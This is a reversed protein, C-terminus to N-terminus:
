VVVLVLARSAVVRNGERDLGCVCESCIWVVHM